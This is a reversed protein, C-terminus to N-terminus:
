RGGIRNKWGHLDEMTVSTAQHPPHWTISPPFGRIWSGPIHWASGRVEGSAYVTAPGPFAAVGDRHRCQRALKGPRSEELSEFNCGAIPVLQFM